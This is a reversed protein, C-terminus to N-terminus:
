QFASHLEPPKRHLKRFRKPFSRLLVGGPSQKQFYKKIFLLTKSHKLTKSTITSESSGEWSKWFCGDAVYESISAAVM